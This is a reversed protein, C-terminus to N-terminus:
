AFFQSISLTFLFYFLLPYFLHQFNLMFFTILLNHQITKYELFHFYTYSYSSNFSFHRVFPLQNYNIIIKKKKKQKKVALSVLSCVVLYYFIQLLKHTRTHSILFFNLSNFSFFFLYNERETRNLENDLFVFTLMYLHGHSFVLSARRTGPTILPRSSLYYQANIDIYVYVFLVCVCVCLYYFIIFFFFFFFFVFSSKYQIYLIFRLHRPKCIHLTWHM